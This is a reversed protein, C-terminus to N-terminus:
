VVGGQQSVPGFTRLVQLHLETHRKREVVSHIVELDARVHRIQVSGRM